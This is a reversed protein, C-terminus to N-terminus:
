LKLSTELYLYCIVIREAGFNHKTVIHAVIQNTLKTWENNLLFM